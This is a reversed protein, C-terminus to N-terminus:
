LIGDSHTPLLSPSTKGPFVVLLALQVLALLLGMANPLMIYPDHLLWGYFTWSGAALTSLVAVPRPISSSDQLRIVTVLKVLPSGFLLVQTFPSTLSLLTSLSLACVSLGAGLFGLHNELVSTEGRSM